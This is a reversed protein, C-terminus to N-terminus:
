NGIWHTVTNRPQEADPNVLATDRWKGRTSNIAGGKKTVFPAVTRKIEEYRVRGRELKRRQAQTVKM